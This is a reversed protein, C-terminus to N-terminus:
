VDTLHHEITETAERLQQAEDVLTQITEPDVSSRRQGSRDPERDRAQTMKTRLETRLEDPNDLDEIAMEVGGGGATSILITGYDFIKGTFDKKLQTNQINELRIRTVNESWVGTKKYVNKDTLLYDTNKTRLYAQVPGIAQLLTWLVAVGWVARNPLPLDVSLVSTLAFAAVFAAISWFASTAVNSIIRRVRPKGAWVVEEDPDLTLWEPNPVM